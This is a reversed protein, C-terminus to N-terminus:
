TLIYSCIVIAIVLGKEQNVPVNALALSLTKGLSGLSIDTINLWTFRRALASSDLLEVQVGVSRQLEHNDRLVEEGDKTALFLYRRDVLQIHPPEEGEVQLISSAEHFFQSSRQSM